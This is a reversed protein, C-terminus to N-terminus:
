YVLERATRLVEKGDGTRSSTFVQAEKLLLPYHQRNNGLHALRPDAISGGSWVPEFFLPLQKLEDINRWLSL